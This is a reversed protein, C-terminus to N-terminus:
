VETVMLRHHGSEVMRSSLQAEEDVAVKLFIGRQQAAEEVGHLRAIAVNNESVLFAAFAAHKLAFAAGDGPMQDIPQQGDVNRAIMARNPQHAAFIDICQQQVAFAISYDATQPYDRSKPLEAGRNVLLM